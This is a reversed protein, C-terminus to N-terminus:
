FKFITESDFFHIKHRKFIKRLRKIEEEIKDRTKRNTHIAIALERNNRKHNIADAIHADQSSLSSGFIVLKKDSKELHEYCFGLYKSREIAKLKETYKGESVFLPMTGKNIIDGIMVILEKPIDARRLKFTGPPMKFIFLAGHLYYVHKPHYDDYDMFQLFQKDDEGWFYDSYPAIIREKDSKDKIKLIIHYLFLDYNLTYIDGFNNLQISLKQLQTKDIKNSQPHTQQITQILGNRLSEMVDDIKSDMDIGLLENVRKANNLIEQILEFNNTRFNRFTRREEPKRRKLFEEFLSDYNFHGALNLSFGNGLLLDAEKFTNSLEPWSEIDLEQPQKESVM